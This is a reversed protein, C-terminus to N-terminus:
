EAIFENLTQHNQRLAADVEANNALSRSPLAEEAESLAAASGGYLDESPSPKLVRVSARPVPALTRPASATASQVPPASNRVPAPPENQSPAPTTDKAAQGVSRQPANRVPGNTKARKAIYVSGLIVLLSAGVTALVKPRFLQAIRHWWPDRAAAEAVPTERIVGEAELQARLSVWIREPPNVEAPIRKAALSIASLDALFNQCAPCYALHERAELPLPSLGEQELVAELEKCQM